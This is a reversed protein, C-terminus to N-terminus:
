FYDFPSAKDEKSSGVTVLEKDDKNKFQQLEKTLQEINLNLNKVILTHEVAKMQMKESFEKQINLEEKLLRNDRELKKNKNQEEELLKKLEDIENNVTNDIAQEQPPLLQNFQNCDKDPIHELEELSQNNQSSSTLSTLESLRWVKARDKVTKEYGLEKLAKAIKKEEKKYNTPHIKFASLLDKIQIYEKNKFKETNLLDKVLLVFSDIFDINKTKNKCVQMLAYKFNEGNLFVTYFKKQIEVRFLMFDIVKNDLLCEESVYDFSLKNYYVSQELWIFIDHVKNLEKYDTM